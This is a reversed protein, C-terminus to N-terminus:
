NVELSTTNISIYAVLRRVLSYVLKVLYNSILHTLIYLVFGVGAIKHDRPVSITLRGTLYRIFREAM